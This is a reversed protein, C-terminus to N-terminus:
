VKKQTAIKTQEYWYLWIPIVIVFEYNAVGITPRLIVVVVTTLILIRLIMTPRLIEVAIGPLTLLIIGLILYLHMAKRASYM